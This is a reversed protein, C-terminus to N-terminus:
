LILLSFKRPEDFNMLVTLNEEAYTKNNVTTEVAHMCCQKDRTGRNNYFDM